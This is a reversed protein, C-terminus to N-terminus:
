GSNSAEPMVVWPARRWTAALRRRIETARVAIVSLREATSRVLVVSSLAAAIMALDFVVQLVPLSLGAGGAGVSGEQQSASEKPARACGGWQHASERLWVHVETQDRPEGRSQCFLCNPSCCCFPAPSSEGTGKKAGDFQ